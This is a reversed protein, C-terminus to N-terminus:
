NVIREATYEMINLFPFWNIFKKISTPWYNINDHCDIEKKKSQLKIEKTTIKEYATSYFTKKWETVLAPHDIDKLLPLNLQHFLEDMINQRDHCFNQNYVFHLGSQIHLKKKKSVSYISTTCAMVFGEKKDIAHIRLKM